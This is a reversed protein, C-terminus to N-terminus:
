RQLGARVRDGGFEVTKFRLSLLPNLQTQVLVQPEIQYGECSFVPELASSTAYNAAFNTVEPKVRAIVHTTRTVVPCEKSSDREESTVPKWRRLDFFV